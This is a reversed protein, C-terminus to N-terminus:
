KSLSSTDSKLFSQTQCLIYFLVNKKKQNWKIIYFLFTTYSFVQNTEFVQYLENIAKKGKYINSRFCDQIILITLWEFNLKLFTLIKVNKLMHYWFPTFESIFHLLFVKWWQFFFDIIVFNNKNRVMKEMIDDLYSIEPPFLYLMKTQNSRLHYFIALFSLVRFHEMCPFNVGEYIVKIIKKLCDLIEEKEDIFSGDVFKAYISSFPQLVKEVKIRMKESKARTQFILLENDIM